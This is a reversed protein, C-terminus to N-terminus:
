GFNIQVRGRAFLQEFITRTVFIGTFLSSVIGAMLTIAFGQIPGTGFSYLIVATLFTTLNADIISSMAKQYGMNLAAKLTRGGDLEERVREYILVNADVAMGITLVIGAIGPLTLTAGFGAMFGLIFLINLLLAVNATVGGTRYYLLMFLAVLLLGMLGAYLGARISERGLTPGVTREEVITVPAPLAGSKLIIVIDEAEKLDRLGTISSRGGTIRTQVTPWSYVYGDLVIAIPKGINAGTLRAWIRAGEANMSMLVEPRNTAPDFSVSAETLVEGTLEVQDRVGLLYLVPGRQPDTFQADATWMPVVGRPLLRQIEPRRFIANVKGTDQVAVAGIVVGGVPQMVSLLPHRSPDLGTTDSVLTDGRVEAQLFAIIRQLSAQLETPDAMLRFELRATGRLLNRVREEDDVGPLEVVIRRTGQKQISPESVGFRDVRTRIIQIARNVAEDAEKRLWDAVEANSSTRTIRAAENRFYRSLRGQPDRREFARVFEDIISVDGTRAREVAERLAAEFLSDREVALNRILEAIGVELTVHMGGQLDLGLKLSKERLRQLRQRNQEVYRLSDEGRLSALKRQERTWQVTPWLFYLSLAVLLGILVWRFQLNSKM